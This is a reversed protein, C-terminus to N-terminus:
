EMKMELSLGRNVSLLWCPLSPTKSRRSMFRVLSYPSMCAVAYPRSFHSVIPHKSEYRTQAFNLDHTITHEKDGATLGIQM